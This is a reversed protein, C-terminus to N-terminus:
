SAKESEHKGKKREALTALFKELTAVEAPDVPLVYPESKAPPLPIIKRPEKKLPHQDCWVRARDVEGAWNNLMTYLDHRLTNKNSEPPWQSKYRREVMALEDDVIQDKILRFAAVEKPMWPTTLRRHNIAAIRKAHDSTPVRSKKIMM